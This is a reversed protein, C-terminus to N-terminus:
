LFIFKGLVQESAQATQSLFDTATPIDGGRGDIEVTHAAPPATVGTQGGDTNDTEVEVIHISNKNAIPLDTVPVPTNVVNSTSEM